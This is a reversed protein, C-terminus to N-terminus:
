GAVSKLLATLSTLKADILGRDGRSEINLRVLPETGSPRVSMRWNGFDLSLGDAHSIEIAEPGLEREIHALAAAPDKIVFNQEGTTPFRAARKSVLEGLGTGSTSILEAILLWPIMGSDCYMFDRFYHHASVEGGYAANTKRMLAKIFSHGVRSQIAEGGAQAVVEQTDWILRPDHIIAAGPQHALAQQTLLGVIYYGDIFAGQADFFFCRDFDGDWAVGFDAGHQRVAAATRPQNKPLIPNPIGNPFSPDPAHDLKVFELPAGAAKLSADIADFSPGATGNGANVLIKLPRLKAPNIFSVVKAAYAARPNESRRKGQRPAKTFGGIEARAKIAEMETLPDLPRSGKAVIKMGNYEIPNHSATVEIGLDAELHSTAFYVEETGCMGIDLVDVGHEIFGRALAELLAESSERSDRGLVVEKPQRIEAIAAAIDYAISEDLDEGLKGRIDYAKFCNLPRM